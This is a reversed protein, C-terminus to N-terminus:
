FICRVDKLGSVVAPAAQRRFAAKVQLDSTHSKLNLGVIFNSPTYHAEDGSLQSTVLCLGFDTYTYTTHISTWEKSSAKLSVGAVCLPEFPATMALGAAFCVAVEAPNGLGLAPRM